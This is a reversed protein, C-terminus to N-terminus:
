NLFPPLEFFLSVIAPNMALGSQAEVRRAREPRSEEGKLINLAVKFSVSLDCHCKLFLSRVPYFWHPRKTEKKVSLTWEAAGIVPHYIESITLHSNQNPRSAFSCGYRPRSSPSLLILLSKLSIWNTIACTASSNKASLGQLSKRGSGSKEWRIMMLSNVM